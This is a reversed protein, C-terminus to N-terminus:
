ANDPRPRVAEIRADFERVLAQVMPDAEAAAEAARQREAQRRQALMLPTDRVVAPVQNLRLAVAHGAREGLAAALAQEIEPRVMVAHAEAIQLSVADATLSEPACAEALARARGELGLEAVQGAWAVALADDGGDTFVPSEAPPAGSAATKRADTSAQPQASYEGVPPAFAPGDPAPTPDVHVSASSSAPAADAHAPDSAM